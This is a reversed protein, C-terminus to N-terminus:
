LVIRKMILGELYQLPEERVMDRISPDVKEMEKNFEEVTIKESNVQALVQRSTSGLYFFYFFVGALILAAIVGVLLYTKQPKGKSSSPIEAAQIEHTPETAQIDNTPITNEPEM